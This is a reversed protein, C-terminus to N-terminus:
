VYQWAGEFSDLELTYLAPGLIELIAQLDLSEEVIPM